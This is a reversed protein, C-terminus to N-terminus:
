RTRLSLARLGVGSVSATDQYIQDGASGSPNGNVVTVASPNYRASYDEREGPQV